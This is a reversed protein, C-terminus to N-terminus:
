QITGSVTPLRKGLLRNRLEWEAEPMVQELFGVQEAVQVAAPVGNKYLVRNEGQIPM